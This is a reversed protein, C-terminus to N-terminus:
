YIIMVIIRQIGEFRVKEQDPYINNDGKLIFYKGENDYGIDIVRHVLTMNKEKSNYSVIDGIKIDNESEPIIEIANASEDLIPDMSNTNLFSALKPNNLEVVVKNNDVIIKSEKIRDFPSIRELPEKGIFNALFYKGLNENKGPKLYFDPISSQYFDSIVWGLVFFIYLVLVLKFKIVLFGGM